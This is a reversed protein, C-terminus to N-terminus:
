RPCAEMTDALSSRREAEGLNMALNAGDRFRVIQEGEPVDYDLWPPRARREEATLRQRKQVARAEVEGALREYLRFRIGAEDDLTDTGITWGDDFSSPQGRMRAREAEIEDPTFQRTNGGGAFGEIEQVGHAVEHLTVSTLADEDAGDDIEFRWKGDVGRFWGVERWIADRSEGAAEMKKAQDLAELDATAAREGGFLFLPRRGQGAAPEVAAGGRQGDFRRGIEGSEISRFVDDVTRLGRAGLARALDNIFQWIRALVQDIASGFRRGGGYDGVMEAVMEETLYREAQDGFQRKYIEGYRGDIDYAERLGNANAHDVLQRWEGETFLGLARLVHVEEHRAVRGPDAAALSIYVASDYLDFRGDIEGIGGFTLRDRVVARVNAPLRDVVRDVERRLTGLDRGAADTHVYTSPDSVKLRQAAQGQAAPTGGPSGAVSGRGGSVVPSGHYARLAFLRAAYEEDRKRAAAPERIDELARAHEGELAAVQREAEPGGLEDIARVGGAGGAAPDGPQLGALGQEDLTRQVREAVADGARQPTMGEAVARAAETLWDSVPGRVTALRELMAQVAAAEAAREANENGALRSGAAEIRDAERTLLGFVRQDNRLTKLAADLVKARERMLPRAVRNAALLTMQTEVHVEARLLDGIVFRAERASAPDAERLADLLMAHRSLDEVLDGVMAAYNPAIEGAVVRDWAEPSLKALARAQRLKESGLPMTGDIIEPRERLIQATDITTGSGEQLNKKAALARVDGPTWGDAERFVYADLGVDPAIRKALSLRQHGDAIVLEGDAREYVVVRGAAIPDWQRVKVLRDTAGAADGGRKFQFTSPDTVVQAAPVQRFGVPKGEVDFTRAPAPADDALRPTRAEPVPDAGRPPPADGEIATRMSDILKRLGTGDDVGEVQADARLVTDIEAAERAGRVAPQDAVGLDEALKGIAELDGEAARKLESGEPAGQAARELRTVPADPGLYPDGRAARFGRWLGRVTADAIFGFAGAAAVDIAALGVGSELGAERRWAQVWPQLAAEVGANVAGQKVAMWFLGRAGAAAPGGPGVFMTALNVPDFMAASIAGGFLAVYKGWGPGYAELTEGLRQEAERAVLAADASVLREPRIQDRKDPFQEALERLRQQFSGAPDLDQPEFGFNTNLPHDLRVGTAQEVQDIRRDIAESLSLGRAISNSVRLVANFSDSWVDLFDAEDGRTAQRVEPAFSIGATSPEGIWMM